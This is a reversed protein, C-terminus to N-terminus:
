SIVAVAAFYIGFESDMDKGFGMGMGFGVNGSPCSTRRAAYGRVTPRRQTRSLLVFVDGGGNGKGGGGNV